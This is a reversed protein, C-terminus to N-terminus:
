IVPRPYSQVDFLLVNFLKVNLSQVVDFLQVDFSQFDFHVIFTFVVWCQISSLTSYLEVDVFCLTSSAVISYTCGLTLFTFKSRAM